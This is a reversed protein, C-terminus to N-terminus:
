VYLYIVNIITSLTRKTEMQNSKYVFNRFFLFLYKITNNHKQRTTSRNLIFM